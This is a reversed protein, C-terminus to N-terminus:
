CIQRGVRLKRIIVISFFSLIATVLITIPIYYIPNASSLPIKQEVIFIFIPHILYMGFSAESVQSIIKSERFYASNNRALLFISASIIFVLAGTSGLVLNDKVIGFNKASYYNFVSGLGILAVILFILLAGKVRIYDAYRDIYHGAIFYAVFWAFATFWAIDLAYFEKALRALGNAVFFFFMVAILITLDRYTPKEGNIFQNIFPAFLMLCLFMSLYWLHVATYGNVILEYKVLSVYSRAEPAFEVFFVLFLVNWFIFPPLIRVARGKYFDFITIKRGLLLSGSIMVFVPVSFRSAANMVNSLWWGIDDISGYRYYYIATVHITIVGFIAVVRLYDLYNKKM